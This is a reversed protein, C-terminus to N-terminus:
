MSNKVFVGPDFKFFISGNQCKKFNSRVGKGCFGPILNIFLDMRANRPTIDSAKSVFVRPDLKDFLDIRANRPTIDSAKSM